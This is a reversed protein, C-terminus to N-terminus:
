RFRQWHDTSPIGRSEVLGQAWRDLGSGAEIYWRDGYMGPVRRYLGEQEVLANTVSWGFTLVFLEPFPRRALIIRLTQRHFEERM